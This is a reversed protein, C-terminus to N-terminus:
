ASTPLCINTCPFSCSRTPEGPLLPPAEPDAHPTRLRLAPMSNEYLSLMLNHGSTSNRKVGGPISGPTNALTAEM